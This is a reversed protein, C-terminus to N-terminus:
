PNCVPCDEPDAQSLADSRGRVEKYTCLVCGDIERNILETQQGCQRCPLGKEAGVKGWGPTHCAPCLRLLRDALRTALEGIVEMRTPNFQARMDTEVWIAGQSCYSRSAEYATQLAQTSQIGKFIPGNTARDTPRLILGHSPFWAAEAFALLAEWSDVQGMRYNTMESVLSLHLHFGRKRDIFYLIEEDCALFPLYPHPGFSGESALVYDM